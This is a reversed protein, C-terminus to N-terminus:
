TKPVRADQAVKLRGHCYSLVPTIQFPNHYCTHVEPLHPNKADRMHAQDFHSGSFYSMTRQGVPANQAVATRASLSLPGLSLSALSAIFPKPAACSGRTVNCKASVGLARSAGRAAGRLFSGSVASIM